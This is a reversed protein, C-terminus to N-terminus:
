DDNLVQKGERAHKQLEAPKIRRKLHAVKEHSLKEGRWYLDTSKTPDAQERKMLKRVISRRESSSLNKKFGWKGIM